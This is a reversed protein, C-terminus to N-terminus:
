EGFVEKLSLLEGKGRQELTEEVENEEERTLVSKIHEVDEVIKQLKSQETNNM